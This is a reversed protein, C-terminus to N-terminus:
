PLMAWFLMGAESSPSERRVQLLEMDPKHCMDTLERYMEKLSEKQQTMRFESEKLQRFIEKAEKAVTELHLQEEEHLFLHIKQYEAKIM